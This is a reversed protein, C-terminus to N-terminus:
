GPQKKIDAEVVCPRFGHRSAIWPKNAIRNIESPSTALTEDFLEAAFTCYEDGKERSEKSSDNAIKTIFSNLRDMGQGGYNRRFMEQLTQSRQVLISQYTTAFTNYRVREDCTLAAVMLETQLVRTNLAAIDRESTCAPTQPKAKAAAASAPSVLCVGLLAAALSSLVARQGVAVVSRM